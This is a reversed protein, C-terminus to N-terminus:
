GTARSLGPLLIGVLADAHANIWEPDRPDRGTLLRVESATVYPQSAAGVLMYSLVDSDIPAALGVDRLLRFSDVSRHRRPLIVDAAQFVAEPWAVETASEGALSILLRRTRLQTVSIVEFSALRVEMQPDLLLGAELVVCRQKGGSHPWRCWAAANTSDCIASTHCSYSGFEADPLDRDTSRTITYRAALQRTTSRCIPGADRRPVFGEGGLHPPHGAM